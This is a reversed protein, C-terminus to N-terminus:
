GRAQAHWAHPARWARRTTLPGPSNSSNGWQGPWQAWAGLELWELELREGKGDAVDTVDRCPEFYLAHSDRAVYVIPQGNDLEVRWYERKEGGDHQSCTALIARTGAEDAFGIQVLEWDGEHEGVGRKTPPYNKPNYPWWLWHQAWYLGGAEVTRRYGIPPLDAFDAPTMGPPLNLRDVPEDTGKHWLHARQDFTYGYQALSEDVDVPRWQERSDLILRPATV